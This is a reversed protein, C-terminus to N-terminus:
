IATCCTQLVPTVKTHNPIDGFLADGCEVVAADFANRTPCPIESNARFPRAAGDIAAVGISASLGPRGRRELLEHALPAPRNIHYAARFRSNATNPCIAAILIM